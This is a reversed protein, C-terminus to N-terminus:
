SLRSRLQDLFVRLPRDDDLCEDCHDSEIHQALGSMLSFPTECTPCQFAYGPTVSIYYFARHCERGVRLVYYRDITSACTGTELHLLMASETVFM